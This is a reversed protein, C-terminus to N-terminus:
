LSDKYIKYLNSVLTDIDFGAEIIKSRMDKRNYGSNYKLIAKVWEEQSTQLSIYQINETIAVQKTISDSVVCKLGSAQAEVLTVPLGEYHSPFLFIDMGQLLENIDERIGTFIVKDNLNLRNVKQEIGSKLEGDGVLILVSDEVLEQVCKFIELIFEHNKPYAFRGVHGIALKNEIQLQMKVKKAINNNFEFKESDIANPILIIKDPDIYEDYMWKSALDSCTLYHTAVKKIRKQNIKHLIKHIKGNPGKSSHAHIIRTKVKLLKAIELPAIYSLSSVHMHIINYQNKNKIFKYLKKYNNIIGESRPPIYYIKGGLKLIEEDYEGKKSAFVMFDFQIKNKDIKRYVNMLLTEIGGRDMINVVHLVRIM